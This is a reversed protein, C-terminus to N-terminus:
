WVTQVKEATGTFHATVMEMEMAIDYRLASRFRFRYLSRVLGIYECRHNTMHDCYEGRIPGWIM